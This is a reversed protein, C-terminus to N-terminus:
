INSILNKGLRLSKRYTPHGSSWSTFRGNLPRTENSTLLSKVLVRGVTPLAQLVQEYIFRKKASVFFFEFLHGKADILPALTTIRTTGHLHLRRHLM